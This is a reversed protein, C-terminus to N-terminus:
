ETGYVHVDLLLLFVCEDKIVVPCLLPGSLEAMASQM